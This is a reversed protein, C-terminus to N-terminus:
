LNFFENISYIIHLQLHKKLSKKFEKVSKSQKIIRPLKNYIKLGLCDISKQNIGLRTLPTHFHEKNRTNFTHINENVSYNHKHKYIYVAVEFVYISFVTSIKLSKFVNRCSEYQPLGVMTRIIRKQAILVNQTHTSPGWFCIGYRIKSEILSHYVCMLQTRTLVKKLNRILYCTSNLKTILNECHYEWSIKDDIFLGLFKTQHAQILGINNLKLQLDPLNRKQANHFQLFITKNINLFMQNANLWNLLNNLILDCKHQIIENNKDSILLSTDDAYQTIHIGPEINITLDNTYIIFLIPALISGQPVGICTYVFDSHISNKQKNTCYNIATFQKRKTLYSSLWKLATGRIGHNDLKVLLKQHNVCDFAKSLDCFIGIPNEKNNMYLLMETIFSYLADNTSLKSRFGYQNKNILKFKTLFNNLRILYCYEFVKSFVSTLAIPRYNNANGHDGKKHM